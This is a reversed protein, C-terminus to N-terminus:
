KSGIIKSVDEVFEEASRKGAFVEMLMNLYDEKVAAELAVDWNPQGLTTNELLKVQQVFLPPLKTEDVEVNWSPIGSGSQYMAQTMSEAVYELAMVAEQKNETNQSVMFCDSASGKYEDLNDKGGNILPFLVAEIKGKVPSDEADFMGGCWSGDLTMGAEGARFMSRADPPLLTMGEEAYAGSDCIEEFLKAAQLVGPQNFPEEGALIKNEETLGISRMVLSEFMLAHQWRGKAGNILPKIGADKLATAAAILEEVNEPIKAGAKDFLEKNCFLYMANADYPLGYVKGGYTVGLLMGSKIKAKTGDEEIYSDLALVKGGSVFPEAFAFGWSFFIDPAENAAIATRIKTKYQEAENGDSELTVNTHEKNFEDVIKMMSQTNIDSPNSYIHWFSLTVDKLEAKTENETGKSETSKTELTGNNENGSNQKCAALSFAILISLLLCLLRMNIKM